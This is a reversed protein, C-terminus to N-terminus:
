HNISSTVFATVRFTHYKQVSSYSASNHFALHILDSIFLYLLICRSLFATLDLASLVEAFM